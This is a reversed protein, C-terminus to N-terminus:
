QAQWAPVPRVPRRVSAPVEPDPSESVDRYFLVGRKRLSYILGALDVAIAEVRAGFGKDAVLKGLVSDGAQTQSVLADLRQVLAKSAKVADHVDSALAETLFKENINETMERIQKVTPQIDALVPEIREALDAIGTTRSGQVVAGGSLFSGSPEAPPVIDVFRDGLLGYVGVKFQAKEDIRVDENIRCVVRVVAGGDAIEPRDAVQGIKAGRYLVQSNKLLGSANPFEVVISYTPKFYNEFKGFWVVAIGLLILGLIVFFGVKVEVLNERM